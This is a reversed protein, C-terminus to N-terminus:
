ATFRKDPMYGGAERMARMLDDAKKPTLQGVDILSQLVDVTSAHGISMEWAVLSAAHEDVLISCKLFAALALAQAEGPDLRLRLRAFLELSGVDDIDRIKIARPKQRQPRVFVEEYVIPPIVIEAHYSILLEVRGTDLFRILPGADSVIV